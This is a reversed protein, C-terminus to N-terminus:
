FSHRLLINNRAVVEIEIAGQLPKEDLTVAFAAPIAPAYQVDVFARSALEAAVLAMAVVLERPLTIAVGLRHGSGFAAVLLSFPVALLSILSSGLALAMSIGSRSGLGNPSSSGRSGVVMGIQDAFADLGMAQAHPGPFEHVLLGALDVCQRVVGQQHWDAVLGAGHVAQLADERALDQALAVARAVLVVQLVAGLQAQEM